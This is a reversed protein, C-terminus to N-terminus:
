KYGRSKKLNIERLDQRQVYIRGVKRMSEDQTVNKQKKDQQVGLSTRFVDEDCFYEDIKEMELCPGVDELGDAGVKTYRLSFTTDRESLVLAYSVHDICIDTMKTSFMDLLLNSMRASLGKMVLFYKCSKEPSKKFFSVPKFDLLKFRAYDIIENDYLRGISIYITDKKNTQISLFLSCKLKIALKELQDKDTSPEVKEKVRRINMLIENLERAVNLAKRSDYVLLLNKQLSGKM